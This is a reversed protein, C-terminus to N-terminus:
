VKGRNASVGRSGRDEDGDLEDYRQTQQTTEEQYYPGSPDLWREPDVTARRGSAGVSGGPSLHLPPYGVPNRDQSSRGGTQGDPPSFQARESKVEPPGFASHNVSNHVATPHQRPPHCRDERPHSVEM